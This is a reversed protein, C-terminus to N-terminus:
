GELRDSCREEDEPLIRLRLPKEREVLPPRGELSQVLLRKFGVPVRPRLSLDQLQLALEKGLEVFPFVGSSVKKNPAPTDVKWTSGGLRRLVWVSTQPMSMTLASISSMLRGCFM